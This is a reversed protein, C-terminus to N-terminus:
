PSICAKHIFSHIFVHVQGQANSAQAPSLATMVKTMIGKQTVDTFRCISETVQRHKSEHKQVHHM